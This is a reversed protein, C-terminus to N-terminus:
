RPITVNQRRTKQEYELYIKAFNEKIWKEQKQLLEEWGFKKFENTVAGGRHPHMKERPRNSGFGQFYHILEHLLTAELVFEPVRPDALIANIEILSGYNVRKLPKIHGLKTKWAKGWRCVLLNSIKHGSFHERCLEATKKALFQDSPM